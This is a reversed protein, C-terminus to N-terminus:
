PVPNFGRSYDAFGGGTIKTSTIAALSSFYIVNTVSGSFISTYIKTNDETAKIHFIPNSVASARVPSGFSFSGVNLSSGEGSISSTVAKSEIRGGFPAPVKLPM